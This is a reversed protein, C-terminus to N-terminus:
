GGQVKRLLESDTRAGIKKMASRKQASITKQSRNLVKAIDRGSLGKKFYQIIIIEKKTLKENINNNILTIENINKIKTKRLHIKKLEIIIKEKLLPFSDESFLYTVNRVKKYPLSAQYFSHKKCPLIIFFDTFKIDMMSTQLKKLNDAYTMDIFLIESGNYRFNEDDMQSSFSLENLIDKIIASLGLNLYCNNSMIFISLPPPNDIIDVNSILRDTLKIM